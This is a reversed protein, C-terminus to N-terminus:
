QSSALGPDFSVGVDRLATALASADGSFAFGSWGVDIAGQVNESKDDVFYCSGPELGFTATFARYIEPYPKLVKHDASIFEGDFCDIAPLTDRYDYYSTATNSLLYIGYGAAKLGRVLAEMGPIPDTSMHWDRLMQPPLHHLRQPLRATVGAAVQDADMTGRDWEVWEPGFVLESTLLAQDTPNDAYAAVFAPVDDLVLVNGMDFVVNTIM